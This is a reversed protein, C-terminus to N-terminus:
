SERLAAMPDIGAARRAPLYAALLAAAGLVIVLVALQRLDNSTLGFLITQMLRGIAAALLSGILTGIATIGVARRTTARVVQWRGAGLAMRVGIEQTRQATLFAMLSYIGVVSLLLAILGVVGLARAIFLFGGARDEVLHALTDLSAIPLDGDVQSVARRLDGAVATPDGVTRVAFAVSYPASQTIPRYIMDLRRDFWNHVIDGCVGIVTIWPGDTAVKFRKGIPDQDGWYRTALTTSLVAVQTSEARDRDDFFRGRLLAIKMAAFYEPNASRLQAFRAELEKLEQGEPFFRRSHNNFAAPIISVAGIESVAPIGRMRSTVDAIFRRRKDADGYNREPFNLQAVLLNEKDFGLLGNVAKDAATIAVTSAFVLALAVAIQTTALVSRMWHRNRGPTLTRGSQRLTESVQAKTAQIAPLVSFAMMALTGLAATEIFLTTDIRIFAWGPIFRLVSAPIGAKSLALGISILPMSVVLAGLALLLGEVLTQGFLRRRTAGLALRISYEATREAGRAMLLNAINACAILMLLMAAAQWVGVFAMAGPDGMGRTFSVVRAQRKGNTDPYDRRQADVITTLEARASEITAGDALRGYVGFGETRRDAWAAEDFTISGWVEAGDPINFGPPAVGVVDYSDGDLRITKGIIAPDSAFRRVWLGHSVVVRRTGPVADSDVFDRGLTPTANLLTFYGPTVQFGPVQEPIDVGSLAPEWWAYLAWDTVTTMQARWERFDAPTVNRRDFLTDEPAMTTAVILRDVGAFRYPRLVLADLISFTTSNVALAVALTFMVAVSLLPRQTIARWAYLVNRTTGSWSSRNAEETALSIWRVPPKRRLARMVGYRVAISLSQRVHWRSAQTVGVRSTLRAFEERLDGLMSERQEADRVILTLVNEGFKSPVPSHSM